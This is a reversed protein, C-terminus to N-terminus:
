KETIRKIEKGEEKVNERRKLEGKIYGEFVCNKEKWVGGWWSIDL